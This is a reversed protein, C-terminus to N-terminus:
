YGNTGYEDANEIQNLFTYSIPRLMNKETFSQAARPNGKTLQNKFVNYGHRKLVAWRNFEGVLERAYEDLVVQENATSLKMHAEYDAADRCARKRLYNLWTAAQGENGLMANAEAAILYVEAMRMIFVDGCKRQLNNKGAGNSVTGGFAGDFNWNLKVLGPYLQYSKTGDFSAEKYKGESDFLDDINICACRYEAKESATLPEKSLYIAIRDEDPQLPYPIVYINKPEQLNATNGTHDSNKPWMKGPYQGWTGAVYNYDAYPYIYEGIYQTGIGYKDCLEQTIKVRQADYAMWTAQVGSENGYACMFTNEWRKDYDADFLDIMYKSPALISSNVRGLFYNGNDKTLYLENLNYPNSFMYTFVNSCNLSSSPAVSTSPGAAIFLAEKNSKNNVSAWVDEVDEYLYAGYTSANNILDEAVEKARQWYSVGNETLGEGAGQAYVRALLGLAAKKTVRAYDGKYPDKGLYRSALTLDEVMQTYLAEYTSRQPRLVAEDQSSNLILSVNGYNTVLLYYYYARLCRAEGELVKVDAATGGEVEDAIEIVSNCTNILSYAQTFLKNTYNTNTSLGEYHFVESAWTKNNATQWLDTGGEAVAFYDMASFLQGYLPEYCYTVMGSWSAFNKTADGGSGAGPNYEDLSCANLMLAAGFMWAVKNLINKKMKTM